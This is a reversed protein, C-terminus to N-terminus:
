ATGATRPSLAAAAAARLDAADIGAADLARPVTGVPADLVGLLVHLPNTHRDRRSLAIANGRRLALKFSEAPRPRRGLSHRPRLPFDAADIGVARLSREVEAGLAERVGDHDLGAGALVAGAPTTERRALALLLHEAELSRSGLEGAEIMAGEVVKRAERGFRSQRM